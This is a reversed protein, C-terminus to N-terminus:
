ITFLSLRYAKLSLSYSWLTIGEEIVDELDNGHGDELKDFGELVDFVDFCM